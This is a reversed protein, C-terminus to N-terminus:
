EARLTLPNEEEEGISEKEERFRLFTNLVKRKVRSTSCLVISKEKRCEFTSFIKDSKEKEERSLFNM